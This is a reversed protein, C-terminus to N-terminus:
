SVNKTVVKILADYDSPKNELCTLDTLHRSLPINALKTQNYCAKNFTTILTDADVKGLKHTERVIEFAKSMNSKSSIIAISKLIKGLEANCITSFTKQLELPFMKYVGTYKIARPKRSLQVLYPQWDMSETNKGYLRKHEVVTEMDNNLIFVQLATVKVMVRCGAMSPMTSYTRKDDLKIKGYLDAKVTAYKCVEFTITNLPLMSKKESHFLQSISIKKKYHVREMDKDCRNLQEINFDNICQFKPIPVLFNKRIYGVKNEVHGKEHGSYPNCFVAQFGYHNKFRLFSATLDRKNEKHIKVVMSSANDFWIKYPVAGVHQFIKQMGELLCEITEGPFLMSYGANSYPFSMVLYSGNRKEGNEIYEAKGFDVQAEGLPHALPLYCSNQNFIEKRKAKVYSAVIRYKGNFDPYEEQLRAYVRRATHRQKPKCLKDQELWNSIIEYYPELKSSKCKKLPCPINFDDQEIYKQITKHAFGTARHIESVSLGKNYYYDRTINIESMNLM